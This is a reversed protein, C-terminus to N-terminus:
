GGLLLRKAGEPTARVLDALFREQMHYREPSASSDDSIIQSARVLVGDVIKGKLGERFIQYRTSWANESFTNGIRIWYSIMETRNRAEVLMRAGAVENGLSTIMVPERAKLTFGQAVYCLEPRHIKVEQRQRRGYAVALLVTDGRPNVYTRLLVDDYPNDAATQENDDTRPDVMLTASTVMERWEGFQRPIINELPQVKQVPAVPTLVRAAAAAAFMSVAVYLPLPWFTRQRNM